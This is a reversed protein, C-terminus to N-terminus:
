ATSRWVLEYSLAESPSVCVLVHNDADHTIEGRVPCRVGATAVVPPSGPADDVPHNTTASVGGLVFGVVWPVVTVAVVVAGAAVALRAPLSLKRLAAGLRATPSADDGPSPAAVRAAQEARRGLELAPHPGAYSAAAVPMTRFTDWQETIARRVTARDGGPYWWQLGNELDMAWAPSGDTAFALVLDRDAALERVFLVDNVQGGETRSGPLNGSDGSMPTRAGPSDRARASRSRIPRVSVAVSAPGGPARRRGVRGRGPRGAGGRVVRRPGQQRVGAAATGGRAAPRAPRRLRGCPDPPTAAAVDFPGRASGIPVAWTGCSDVTRRRAASLQEPLCSFLLVLRRQVDAVQTVELHGFGSGAASLPRQVSWTRLDPSTAHGVVGRDDVAGEAARATVLMHWRGDDGRLVWPDRWATADWPPPEEVAYWRPDAEVLVDAQKTWTSLDRSTAAGIRQTRGGDSRSTGAYFMWWTGVDGRVISGTWTTLDDFAPGTSPTLATGLVTWRVLDVSTAHGISVNWHRLDPDGIAKPANLFFAHSITGDDVTWFDWVWRDDLRLM